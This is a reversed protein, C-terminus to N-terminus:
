PNAVLDCCERDVFPATPLSLCPESHITPLGETIPNPFLQGYDPMAIAMAMM